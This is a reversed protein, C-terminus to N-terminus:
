RAGVVRADIDRLIRRRKIGRIPVDEEEQYVIEIRDFGVHNDNPGISLPKFELRGIVRCQRRTRSLRHFTAESALRNPGEALLPVPAVRKTSVDPSDISSYSGHFVHNVKLDREVLPNGKAGHELGM